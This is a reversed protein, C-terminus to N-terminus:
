GLSLQTLQFFRFPTHRYTVQSLETSIVSMSTRHLMLVQFVPTLCISSLLTFETRTKMSVHLIHDHLFTRACAVKTMAQM